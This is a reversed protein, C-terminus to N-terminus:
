KDGAPNTVFIYCFYGLVIISSEFSFGVVAGGLAPHIEIWDNITYTADTLWSVSGFVIPVIFMLLSLEIRSKIKWRNLFGKM